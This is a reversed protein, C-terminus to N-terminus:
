IKAKISKFCLEELPIGSEESVIAMIMAATPEDVNQLKLEGCSLEPGEEEIAVPESVCGSGSLNEGAKGTFLSITMSFLKIILFLMILVFFVVAMTFMAYPVSELVTM